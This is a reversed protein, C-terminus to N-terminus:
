FESKTDDHDIDLRKYFFIILEDFKNLEFLSCGKDNWMTAEEKKNRSFLRM